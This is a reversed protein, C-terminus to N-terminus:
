RPCCCPYDRMGPMTRSLNRWNGVLRSSWCRKRQKEDDINQIIVEPPRMGVVARTVVREPHMWTSSTAAAKASVALLHGHQETTLREM